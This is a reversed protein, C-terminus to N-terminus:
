GKGANSCPSEPRQLRERHSRHHRWRKSPYIRAEGPPRTRWRRHSWNWHDPARRIAGEIARTMREVNERVAAERDGSAPAFALAPSFRLVHTAGGASRYLFAPLVPVGLRMALRAPGSRTCAAHAFFPVFVGERRSANQDLPMAVLRGERLGRLAARAASGRHLVEIGVSERWSTLLRELQPNGVPRHVLSIPYGRQAMAAGMLEWCGFHGTLVVLGGTPSAKRADELHELGEVRVRVLLEGAPLYAIEAFEAISRGLNTCCSRWLRQRRAEEWDPFAMRLNTLAIERRWHLRRSAVRGAAEGLRLAVGRPLRGLLTYLLLATWATVRQGWRALLSSRSSELRPAPRM